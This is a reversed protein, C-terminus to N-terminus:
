ASRAFLHFLLIGAGASVVINLLAMGTLGDRLLAYNEYNFTSMTSFGGCFGVALLAHWPAREPALTQFRLVAWALVATALLNAALTAWPFLAAPALRMILRGIAFRAVSGVGGGVFVALWLNM